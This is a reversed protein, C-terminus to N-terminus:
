DGVADPVVDSPPVRFGPSLGGILGAGVALVADRVWTPQEAEIPLLAEFELYSVGKAEAERLELTKGAGRQWRHESNIAALLNVEQQLDELSRRFVGRALREKRVRGRDAVTATQDLRLRGFMRPRRSGTQRIELDEVPYSLTELQM